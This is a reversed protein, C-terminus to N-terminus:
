DWSYSFMHILITFVILCEQAVVIYEQDMWTGNCMFSSNGIVPLGNDPSFINHWKSALCLLTNTNRLVVHFSSCNPESLLPDAGLTRSPWTVSRKRQGVNLLYAINAKKNSLNSFLNSLSFDMLFWKVIAFLIFAPLHGNFYFDIKLTTEPWCKLLFTKLNWKWSM